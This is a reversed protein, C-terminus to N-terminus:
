PQVEAVDIAYGAAELVDEEHSNDVRVKGVEKKIADRLAKDYETILTDIAQKMEHETITCFSFLHAQAYIKNRLEDIAKKNM